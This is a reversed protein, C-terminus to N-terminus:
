NDEVSEIDYGDCCPKHDIKEENDVVDPECKELRRKRKSNIKRIGFEDVNEDLNNEKKGYDNM